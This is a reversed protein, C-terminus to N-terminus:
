SSYQRSPLPHINGEASFFYVYFYYYYLEYLSNGPQNFQQALKFLLCHEVCVYDMFEDLFCRKMEENCWHSCGSRPSSVCRLSSPVTQLFLKNIECYSASSNLTYSSYINQLCLRAGDTSIVLLRNSAKVATKGQKFCFFLAAKWQSVAIPFLILQKPWLFPCLMLM